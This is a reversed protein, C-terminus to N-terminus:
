AVLLLECTVTEEGVGKREGIGMRGGIGKREGVGKSLLSQAEVCNSNIHFRFTLTFAGGTISEQLKLMIPPM